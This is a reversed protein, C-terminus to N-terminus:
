PSAAGSRVALAAVYYGSTFSLPWEDLREFRMMTALARQQVAQSARQALAAVLVAPARPVHLVAGIREVRFGAGALMRELEARGCTAGVPYPIIGLRELWRSSLANRLAVFPNQPNDLTVLLRGGVALVRHIERLSAAIEGISEFHDLTSNSLVLDFSRDAFPLSRVDAALRRLAGARRAVSPSLDGGVVVEARDALKGLLGDGTAEDFLDTKYARAVRQQPLWEELLRANVADSHRRWLRQRGDDWSAVAAASRAHLSLSM